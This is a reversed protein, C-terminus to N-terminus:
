KWGVPSCFDGESYDQDHQVQRNADNRVARDKSGAPRDADGFGSRELNGPISPKHLRLSSPRYSGDSDLLGRLTNGATQLPEALPPETFQGALQSVVKNM